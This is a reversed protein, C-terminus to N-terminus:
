ECAGEGLYDVLCDYFEPLDIWIDEGYSLNYNIIFNPSLFPISDYAYDDLNKRKCYHASLVSQIPSKLGKIIDAFYDTMNKKSIACNGEELLGTYDPNMICASLLNSLNKSLFETCGIYSEYNIWAFPTYLFILDLLHKELYSNINYNSINERLINNIPEYLYNDPVWPMDIDHVQININNISTRPTTWVFYTKDHRTLSSFTLPLFLIDGSVEIDKFVIEGALNRRANTIREIVEGGNIKFYFRYDFHIKDGVPYYMVNEVGIEYDYIKVRYDGYVENMTLCPFLFNFNPLYQTFSSFLPNTFTLSTGLCKGETDFEPIFRVYKTFVERFVWFPLYVRPKRSELTMKAYIFDKEGNPTAVIIKFKKEAEPLFVSGSLKKNGDPFTSEVPCFSMGMSSPETYLFPILFLGGLLKRGCIWSLDIDPTGKVEYNIPNINYEVVEGPKAVPEEIRVKSSTYTRADNGPTTSGPWPTLPEGSLDRTAYSCYTGSSLYTTRYLRNLGLAGTVPCENCMPNGEPDCPCTLWSSGTFMEYLAAVQSMPESFTARSLVESHPPVKTLDLGPAGYNTIYPLVGDPVRVTFTWPVTFDEEHDLGGGQAPPKYYKTTITEGKATKVPNAVTSVFTITNITDPRISARNIWLILRTNSQQFEFSEFALLPTVPIKNLYDFAEVSINALSFTTPDIPETFDIGAYKLQTTDIITGCKDGVFTQKIYKSGSEVQPAIQYIIARILDLVYQFAPPLEGNGGACGCGAGGAGSGCSLQGGVTMGWFMCIIIVCKLIIKVGKM